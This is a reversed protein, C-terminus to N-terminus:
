KYNQVRFIQQCWEAEWFTKEWKDDLVSVSGDGCIGASLTASVKPYKDNHWGDEIVTKGNVRNLQTTYEFDGEVRFFPGGGIGCEVLTFGSWKVEGKLYFGVKLTASAELGLTNKFYTKSSGNGWCGTPWCIIGEGALNCGASVSAQNRFEFSDTIEISGEVSEVNYLGVGLGSGGCTWLPIDDTQFKDGNTEVEVGVKLKLGLNHDYGASVHGQVSTFTPYWIFWKKKWDVRIYPLAASFNTGAYIDGGVGELSLTLKCNKKKINFERDKMNFSTSLRASTGDAYDQSGEAFTEGLDDIEITLMQEPIYMFELVERLEPQITDIYVTGDGGEIIRTVKKFTGDVDQFISGVVLDAPSPNVFEGSRVNEAIGTDSFDVVEQKMHFISDAFQASACLQWASLLCLTLVLTIKKM